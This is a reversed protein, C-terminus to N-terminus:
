EQFVVRPSSRLFIQPEVVTVDNLDSFLPIKQKNPQNCTCGTAVMIEMLFMCSNMWGKRVLVTDLDLPILDLPGEGDMWDEERWYACASVTECVWWNIATVIVQDMGKKAITVRLSCFM